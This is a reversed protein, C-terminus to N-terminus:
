MSKKPCQINFNNQKVCQLAPRTAPGRFFQPASESKETL